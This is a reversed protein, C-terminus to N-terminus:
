RSTGPKDVPFCTPVCVHILTWESARLPGCARDGAQHSIERAAYQVSVTSQRLAGGLPIRPHNLFIVSTAFILIFPSIALGFYFHLDRGWLYFQRTISQM